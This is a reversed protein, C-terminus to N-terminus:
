ILLNDIVESIMIHEIDNLILITNNMRVALVNLVRGNENSIFM